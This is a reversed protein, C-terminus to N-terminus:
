SAPEGGQTLCDGRRMFRTSGAIKCAVPADVDGPSAADAPGIARASSWWASGSKAAPGTAAPTGPAAAPKQQSHQELIEEGKDLEDFVFCGSALLCAALLPLLRVM